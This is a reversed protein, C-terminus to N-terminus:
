NVSTRQSINIPFFSKLLSLSLNALGLFAAPPEKLCFFEM